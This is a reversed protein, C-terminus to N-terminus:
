SYFINTMTRKLRTVLFYFFGSFSFPIYRQKNFRLVCGTDGPVFEAKIGPKVNEWETDGSPKGGNSETGESRGDKRM